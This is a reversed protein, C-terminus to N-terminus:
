FFVSIFKELNGWDDNEEILGWNNRIWGVYVYVFIWFIKIFCYLFNEILKMIKNIYGLFKNIEYEFKVYKEECKCINLLLNFIVKNKRIGFM